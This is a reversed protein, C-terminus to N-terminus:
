ATAVRISCPIDTINEVHVRLQTREGYKIQKQDLALTIRLLAKSLPEIRDVQCILGADDTLSFQRIDKTTLELLGSENKPFKNAIESAVFFDGFVTQGWRDVFFTGTFTGAVPLNEAQVPNPLALASVFLLDLLYLTHM